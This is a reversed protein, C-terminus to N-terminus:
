NETEDIVTTLRMLVYKVMSHLSRGMQVLTAHIFTILFPHIMCVAMVSHCQATRVTLVRTLPQTRQIDLIAHKVYGSTQLCNPKATILEDSVHYVM